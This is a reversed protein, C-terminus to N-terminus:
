DKDKDKDKDKSSNNYYDDDRHDIGIGVVIRGGNPLYVTRFTWMVRTWRRVSSDPGLRVLTLEMDTSIQTPKMMM